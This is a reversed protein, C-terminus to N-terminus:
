RKAARLWEIVREFRDQVERKDHEESFSESMRSVMEAHLRVAKRDAENAVHQAITALAELLRITVAVSSRAHQRIQNFAADLAGPFSEPRTIIRLQGEDDCRYPRSLRKEALRGLSAGLRDVCNIATFPDNIGPSLSRVAVEVLEEIACEVDQRPTRRIGVIVKENFPATLEDASLDELSGKGGPWVDALPLGAAIFDGPRPRLRVVLDRQGAIQMLGDIDIAQIYGERTTRVALFNKALQQEQRRGDAAPPEDDGAPETAEPFLREIADDLDSAVAAVIQPAQILIAVHHIFVILMVMSLVALVVAALVSLHPAQAGGEHHEVVRLILLCYFGTSLFVGLTVQTPLDYMFRRLLRPGFQQSTLSLTVITISFVTGTVAVMAGAIASLTARAADTTTSIWDPLPSASKALAADLMPMFLALLVAGAAFLGPVFWYSSRTADWLNLLYTRM